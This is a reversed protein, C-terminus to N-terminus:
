VLIGVIMGLLWYVGINLMNWLAVIVVSKSPLRNFLPRRLIKFLLFEIPIIAFVTILGFLISHLVNLLQVILLALLFYILHESMALIIRSYRRKCFDPFLTLDVATRKHKLAYYWDIPFVASLFFELWHAFFLNRNM